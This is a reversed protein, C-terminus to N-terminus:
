MFWKTMLFAKESDQLLAAINYEILMVRIYTRYVPMKMAYKVIYWISHEATNLNPVFETGAKGVSM